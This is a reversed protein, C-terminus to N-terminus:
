EVALVEFHGVGGPRRVRGEDGVELGLLAQGLPSVPTVARVRRGGAEVEIGAAGPVVLWYEVAGADTDADNEAGADGDGERETSVTVLAGVAVADDESFARLELRGLGEVTRELAAVREALGRALYSAETARTDKAHEARNEEHTAAAQSDAQRRALTALDEAVRARLADVLFRKEALADKVVAGREGIRLWPAIGTARHDGTAGDSVTACAGAAAM